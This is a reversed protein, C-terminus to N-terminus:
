RLVGVQKEEEFTYEAEVTVTQGEVVAPKLEIDIRLAAGPAVTIKKRFDLFGIYSAVLTYEGPKVDPMTYYGSNNTTTGQQTGDIYVNAMILTEGSTADKVYGTIIGPQALVGINMLLLFVWFRKLLRVFFAM